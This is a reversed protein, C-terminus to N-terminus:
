TGRLHPVCRRAPQGCQQRRKTAVPPLVLAPLTVPPPAAAPCAVLVRPAVVAALRCVQLLLWRNGPVQRAEAVAVVLPARRLSPQQKLSTVRSWHRWRHLASAAARWRLRCALLSRKRRWAPHWRVLHPRRTNAAVSWRLGVRPMRQRWSRARPPSNHVRRPLQLRLPQLRRACRWRQRLLTHLRRGRALSPAGGSALRCPRLLWVSALAAPVPAAARVAAAALSCSRGRGLALPSFAAVVAQHPLRWPRTVTAMVMMMM